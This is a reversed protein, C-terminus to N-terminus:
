WQVRFGIATDNSRYDDKFKMGTNLFTSVHGTPSYLSLGVGVEGFAGSVDDPLGIDQGNSILVARNKGEFEDWVRGTMQFKLTSTSLATDGWVRVGLSGRLSKAEETHLDGGPLALDDFKTRVYALSALPEVSVVAFPIRWGGEIQGGTSKVKGSGFRGPTQWVKDNRMDLENAQVIGDIFFAGNLWSAYAGYSQGEFKAVSRSADFRLDSNLNGATLGVVYAQGDGSGRMLDIGVSVAVTDQKHSTDFLYTSGGPTYAQEMDRDANSGAMKIWVGPGAGGDILEDRLDAQRDFWTGTSTYWISQASAALPSFEFAKGDAVSILRHQQNAADYDLKYLFLDKELGVGLTPDVTYFDSTPDLSFDGAASAGGKVDVLVIGDATLAGESQGTDNVRILTSGATSGGRLDLCDAVTAASCGAQGAGGLDVDMALTSDGSGVFDAGQAVLRDDAVGDTVAGNAGFLIVGSNNFTELNALTLASGVALAGSNTFVDAGAGFDITGNSAILGSNSLTDAADTFLSTGGTRWTGTNDFALMDSASFDVAGQLLRSNNLAVSAADAVIVVDQPQGLGSRITGANNITASGASTIDLAPTPQTTWVTAAARVDVTASGGSDVKIAPGTGGAVDGGAIVRADSVATTALVGIGGAQVGGAEVTLDGAGNATAEVGNAAATVGGLAVVQVVGDQSVARVGTDGSLGGTARVVLKGTLTSVDIAADGGQVSGSSTVSIRSSGTTSALIGTTTGSVSGSSAIVIRGDVSTADIGLDGSASGSNSISLVGTQTEGQLASLDSSVSDGSALTVSGDGSAMGRLGMDSASVSGSSSLSLAGNVVSGDIGIGSSVIAGASSVTVDGADITSAEIGRVPTFNATANIDAASTVAVDGGLSDTIIGVNFPSTSPGLPEDGGTLTITGTGVSVDIDGLNTGAAVGVVHEGAMEINLGDGVTVRASATGNQAEAYIAAGNYAGTDTNTFAANSGVNIEASPAGDDAMATSSAYLGARAGSYVPSELQVTFNDGVSVLSRAASQAFGGLLTNDLTVGSGFQVTANGLGNNLAQAARVADITSGDGVTVTADGTNEFYDVDAMLGEFASQLTAGRTAGFNVTASGQAAWIQARVSPNFFNGTYVDGNVTVDVDSISDGFIWGGTALVGGNSALDASGINSDALITIPGASQAYIAANGWLNGATHIDVAGSQALGEVGYFGGHIDGDTSLTVSGRGTASGVVGMNADVDGTSSINLAGDVVTGLIGYTSATLDGTSAITVDGVITTSGEIASASIYNSYATIDADSTIHVDGGSSTGLIGVNAPIQMPTVLPYDGGTLAVAGVGVDINLDGLGTLGYVGAVFEGAQTLALGDGVSISTSATGNQAVAQLMAVDSASTDTNTLTANQGITLESSPGEVDTSAVSLLTLGFGAPFLGPALAITLNDGATVKTQGLATALVGYSGALTVDSGLQVSTDGAAYNNAMVDIIANVSSGNGISVSVDGSNGVQTIAATIGTFGTNDLTAARTQGFAVTVNGTPASNTASIGSGSAYVDGNVTVSVDGGAPGSYGGNAVNVASSTRQSASGIDGDAVLTIDHNGALVIGNSALVDAASTTTVNVNGATSDGRIGYSLGSVAAAARITLDGGSIARIGMGSLGSVSVDDLNLSVPGNASYGYVGALFGVIQGAVDGDDTDTLDLTVSGAGSSNLQVGYGGLNAISIDGTDPNAASATVSINDDLTSLVTLGGSTAVGDELVLNFDSGIVTSYSIGTPYTGPL